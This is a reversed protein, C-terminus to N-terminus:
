SANEHRGLLFYTQQMGKGKVNMKGRDTFRYRDQLLTYTGQSVHVRSPEGHSEMRSATNVTDGWLDYSFKHKGIVGAVVPGSHIGIRVEMSLGRNRMVGRFAELMGLAMGAVAEAHDDRAEPLGAVAMYADGITKIKEVGYANALHDFASFIDDLLDVLQSADVRESFTTFGCLDAFLVSVSSYTEAITSVNNKLREAITDPLINRLLRESKERERTLDALSRELAGFAADRELLRKYAESHVRIRAILEIQHPLKILYDNAGAELLQAKTAAEENASLMIVPIKETSPHSRFQSVLDLGDIDPMVLDQLIVTPQFEEATSLAKAADKCFAFTIDAQDALLRRVAEGIMPQDDVLLVRHGDVSRGVADTVSSATVSTQTTDTQNSKSDESPTADNM